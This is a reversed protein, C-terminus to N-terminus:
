NPVKLVTNKGGKVYKVSNSDIAAVQGGSVRDGVRVKVFRGSPLRLLAHRKSSTGYVGIVNLKSLNIANKITATKAVSARTPLSPGASPASATETALATEKNAVAKAVIDEFGEPRGSPLISATIAHQTPESSEATFIAQQSEPRGKPRIEALESISRDSYKAAGINNELLGDPRAKPRFEALSKQLSVIELVPKEPPDSTPKGAVVRVGDPTLSGNKTAVVFGNEGIDFKTALPLPSNIRAPDFDNPGSSFDPLAVADPLVIAGDIGSVFIDQSSGGEGILALESVSQLIGTQAYLEDVFEPTMLLADEFGEPLPLGANRIDNLEQLSLDTATEVSDDLAEAFTQETESSTGDSPRAEENTGLDRDPVAVSARDLNLDSYYAWGGASIGLIALVAAAYKWNVRSKAEDDTLSPDAPPRESKSPLNGISRIWVLLDRASTQVLALLRGFSSTIGLGLLAIAKLVGQFRPEPRGLPKTTAALSEPEVEIALQNSVAPQDQEVPTEPLIAELTETEDDAVDDEFEDGLTDTFEEVDDDDVFTELEDDDEYDTHVYPNQDKSIQIPKADREIQGSQGLLVAAHNTAGFLARWCITWVRTPRCFM